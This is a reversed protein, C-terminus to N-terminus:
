ELSFYKRDKFFIALGLALLLLILYTKNAKSHKFSFKKLKIILDNDFKYDRMKKLLAFLIRYKIYGYNIFKKILAKKLKNM